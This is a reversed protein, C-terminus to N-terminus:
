SWANLYLAFRMAFDSDHMATRATLLKQFTANADKM